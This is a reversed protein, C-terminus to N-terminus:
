STDFPPAPELTSGEPMRGAALAQRHFHLESAADFARGARYHLVRGLASAEAREAEAPAAQGAAATGRREAEQVLKDRLTAAIRRLRAEVKIAEGAALTGAADEDPQASACFALPHRAADAPVQQLPRPWGEPVAAPRPAKPAAAPEPEPRSAARKQAEIVRRALLERPDRSRRTEHLVFAIARLDGTAVLRELMEGAMRVLRRLLEDEPLAALARYHEVLARFGDDELLATVEQEPIREVAAVRRPALGAGLGQAIRQRCRRPHVVYQRKPKPDPEYWPM